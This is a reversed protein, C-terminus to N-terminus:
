CNGRLSAVLKEIVGDMDGIDRLPYEARIAAYSSGDCLLVMRQYMVQGNRTGSFSAWQPTTVQYTIGWGENGVFDMYDAVDSEFEGTLNSGWVALATPSGAVKFAQGDGNDSEGGQTFGPPIDIGYGFRANDYHRWEQAVAPAACCLFFLLFRVLMSGANRGKSTQAICM